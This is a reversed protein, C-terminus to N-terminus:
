AHVFLGTLLRMSGQSYQTQGLCWGPVSHSKVLVEVSNGATLSMIATGALVQQGASPINAEAWGGTAGATTDVIWSDFYDSSAGNNYISLAYNLLFQGSQTPTFSAVQTGPGGSSFTILGTNTAFHNELNQPGAPGQIGQPGQILFAGNVPNSQYPPTSENQATIATWTVGSVTLTTGLITSFQSVTPIVAQRFFGASSKYTAYRPSVEPPLSPQTTAATMGLAVAFDSPVMVQYNNGDNGTYVYAGYM